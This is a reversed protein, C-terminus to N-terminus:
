KRINKRKTCVFTYVCTNYICIHTYTWMYHFSPCLSFGPIKVSSLRIQSDVSVSGLEWGSVLRGEKKSTNWAFCCAKFCSKNPPLHSGFEWGSVWTAFEKDVSGGGCLNHKGPAYVMFHQKGESPFSNM